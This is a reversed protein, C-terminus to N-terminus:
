SGPPHEATAGPPAKETGPPAAAPEDRAVRGTRSAEPPPHEDRAPVASTATDLSSDGNAIMRAYRRELAGRRSLIRIATTFRETHRGENLEDQRRLWMPVLYAAWAGVIAAYILGSSSM